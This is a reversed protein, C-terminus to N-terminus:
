PFYALLFGLAYFHRWLQLKLALVALLHFSARLLLITRLCLDQEMSFLNKTKPANPRFVVLDQEMQHWPFHSLFRRPELLIKLCATELGLAVRM